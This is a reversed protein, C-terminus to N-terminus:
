RMREGRPPGQAVVRELLRSLPPRQRPRRPANRPAPRVRPRGLRLLRRGRRGRAGRAPARRARRDHESHEARRPHPRRRPRARRVRRALARAPARRPPRPRARRAARPAGRGDGHRGARERPTFVAPEIEEEGSELPGLWASLGGDLVGVWDHGFHRLLWWLRAAGGSMGEDYAVVLTDDGIGARGMAEAFQEARPLPHRGAVEPPISLDSLDADLDVFAAGPIHAELYRARASPPDLLDYRCDAFRVNVPDSRALKRPSADGRGAALPPAPRRPVGGRGRHAGLRDADARLRLAHRRARVGASRRARRRPLGLPLARAPPRRARRRLAIGLRRRTSSRAPGCPRRQVRRGRAPRQDPLLSRSHETAVQEDRPRLAIPEAPVSDAVREIRGDWTLCAGGVLAAALNDPHGELPLGDALLAEADPEIGAAIAGAVLGLAILSASSGLGSSRPIRYTFEFRWGDVPAVRAFAGIGLHHTDAPPAAEDRVVELENWLELAVAACDFGSGVNATTAPARVHIAETVDALPTSAGGRRMPPERSRRSRDVQQPPPAHTDAAAPDKLGHGTITVVVRAGRLEDSARLFALGAASAPECFLGEERALELWAAVIEEDTVAHVHAGSAEVRERAGAARHPDRERPHAAPRRGRGLPDAHRHGAGGDRARVRDHQRGRRLAARLRRASRRAGRRDRVRGDETGRRPRPQALQRARLRRARRARPRGHAGRRLQRARRPCARRAGPGPRAERRAAGEAVLVVARIGARAAYAAASASTNGTSACVVARAGDEVAKSVAVTM